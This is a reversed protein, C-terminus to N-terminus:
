GNSINQDSDKAIKVCNRGSRKAEYLATDAKEMFEEFNSTALELLSAVGISVTVRLGDIVQKEINKRLREATRTAGDADVHPLIILFEEGGYRCPIDITRITNRITNSIIKLVRDGMEHGHEDNFRKFHDVDFLLISLDESYRISKAWETELVRDLHRRNYLSTLGDTFSLMELEERLRREETIDRFLAASGIAQGDQGTITSAMVQLIRGRYEVESYHKENLPTKLQEAILTADDLINAFGDLSIEVENKQLLEQAAPNILVIMGRKDTVIIGEQVAHIITTLKNQEEKLGEYTLELQSSMKNFSTAMRSLEDRGIVPVKDKLNGKSASTMASTVLKIPQVVTRRILLYTIVLIVIVFASMLQMATKRTESIDAEVKELSTTLKVVGRIKDSSGHCEHCNDENNIPSIFTLLNQGNEGEHYYRYPKHSNRVSELAFHSKPLVELASETDRPIFLEEGKRNNVEKITDNDQFAELGDSRLIRFDVVDSVNHLNAAFNKATDAYGAIMVTQLGQIVSEGVKEMMRENQAYLNKKQRVSYDFSFSVVAVSLILGFLLILKTGIKKFM